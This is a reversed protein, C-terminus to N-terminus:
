FLLFFVSPRCHAHLLSCSSAGASSSGPQHLLSGKGLGRGQRAPSAFLAPSSTCGLFTLTLDVCALYGLPTPYHSWPHICSCHCQSAWCQSADRQSAAPSSGPCHCTSVQAPVGTVTSLTFAYFAFTAMSSYSVFALHACQAWLSPSDWPKRKCPVNGDEMVLPFYLQRLIHLCFQPGERPVLLSCPNFSACTCFAVKIFGLLSRLDHRM